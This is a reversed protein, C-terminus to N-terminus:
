ATFKDNVLIPYKDDAQKPNCDDTKNQAQVGFFILFTALILSATKQKM